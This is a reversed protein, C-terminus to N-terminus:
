SQSHRVKCNSIFKVINQYPLAEMNGYKELSKTVLADINDVQPIEAGDIFTAALGFLGGCQVKMAKGHPLKDGILNINKLVFRANKCFHNFLEVCRRQASTSICAVNEREAISLRHCKECDCRSSLIAKQFPCPNQNLRERIQKFEDENM